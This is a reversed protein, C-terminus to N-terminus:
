RTSTYTAEGAHGRRVLSRRRRRGVIDDRIQNRRYDLESQVYDRHMISEYM